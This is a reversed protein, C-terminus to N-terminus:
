LIKGPSRKVRRSNKAEWEKSEEPKVKSCTCPQKPLSFRTTVDGRLM